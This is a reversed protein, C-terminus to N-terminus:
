ADVRQELCVCITVEEATEAGVLDQKNAFVLLPTEALLEESLISSLEEGTEEMREGDASDVVYVKM